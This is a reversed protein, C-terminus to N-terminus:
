VKDQGVIASSAPPNELRIDSSLRSLPKIEITRRWLVSWRAVPFELSRNGAILVKGAKEIMHREELEHIWRYTTAIPMGSEKSFAKATFEIRPYALFAYLNRFTNETSRM